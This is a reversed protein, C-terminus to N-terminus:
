DTDRSWGIRGDWLEISDSVHPTVNKDVNLYM